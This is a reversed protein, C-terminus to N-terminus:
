TFAVIKTFFIGVYFATNEANELVQILFVM